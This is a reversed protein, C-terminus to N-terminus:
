YRMGMCMIVVCKKCVGCIVCQLLYALTPILVRRTKSWQRYHAGVGGEMNFVGRGREFGINPVFSCSWVVRLM